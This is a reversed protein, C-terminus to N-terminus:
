KRAMVFLSGKNTYFIRLDDDQYVMRWTGVMANAEFEKKTRLPGLSFEQELFEVRIVEGEAHRYTAKIYGQLPGLALTNVYEGDTDPPFEQDNEGIWPGIKGSSPGKSTTFICKWKTGTLDTAAPNTTPNLAQLQEVARLVEDVQAESLDFGKNDGMLAFLQEKQQQLGAATSSGGVARAILAGRQPERCAWRAALRLSPSQKRSRQLRGTQRPRMPSATAVGLAALANACCQAM